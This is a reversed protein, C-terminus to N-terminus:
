QLWGVVKDYAADGESVLKGDPGFIMFHPISELGYQRAVPSQWDIGVVGPRNINVEVVAVDARKEHLKRLEPAIAMCPPCYHSYFDVITTKGPVLYDAVNVEKGFSVELPEPGKTRAAGAFLAAAGFLLCAPLLVRRFTPM